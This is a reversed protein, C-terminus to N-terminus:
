IANSSGVLKKLNKEFVANFEETEWKTEELTEQLYEYSVIFPAFNYLTSQYYYIPYEM